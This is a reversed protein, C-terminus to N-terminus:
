KPWLWGFVAGTALSYILSDIGYRLTTGWNRKWWISDQLQAVWYCMFASTGAFRFVQAYPAGPGLARGTIYAAFVDVLLSYAFWQVLSAGMNGRGNPYVTMVAVPGAELKALHEPTRMDAPGAPRPMMYDGPPIKHPRLAAMIEAEAALKKLDGRHIPLAMHVLFSLLFVAVAAAVIPLLLTVISVM